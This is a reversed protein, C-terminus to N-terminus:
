YLISNSSFFTYMNALICAHEKTGWPPRQPCSHHFIAFVPMCSLYDIATIYITLELRALVSKCKHKLIWTLFLSWMRQSTLQEKQRVYNWVFLIIKKDEADSPKVQFCGTEWLLTRTGMEQHNIGNYKNKSFYLCMFSTILVNCGSRSM